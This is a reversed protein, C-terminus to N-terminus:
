QAVIINGSIMQANDGSVTLRYIYYGVKGNLQNGLAQMIAENNFTGKQNSILQGNINYVELDYLEDDFCDNSDFQINGSSNLLIDPANLACDLQAIRNDMLRTDDECNTYVEIYADIASVEGVENIALITIQDIGEFGPLPRYTICTPSIIDYSCGYLSEVDYIEYVNYITFNEDFHCFEPCILIQTMPRTCLNLDQNVCDYPDINVSVTTTSEGGFGDCITYEFTTTGVFDTDPTFEFGNATEIVSGNNAQTFGCITLENNDADTDNSLVNITVPINPYTDAIDANAVPPVNAGGCNDSVTIYVEITSEEGQANIGTIEVLDIGYFGPLGTYRICGDDMMWISCSYLSLVNSVEYGDGCFEPCIFQAEMHGICYEMTTNECPEPIYVTVTATSEGGNGDCITYEFTDTGYFGPDPFYFFADGEIFVAGNEPTEVACISIPDNDPDSDNTLPYIYFGAEDSTEYDDVAIPPNNTGCDNSIELNFVVELCNEGDSYLIIVTDSGIAEMGPLPTYMVCGNPLEEISCHYTSETEIISLGQINCADACLMTPTMPLICVSGANCQPPTACSGTGGDTAGDDTGTEDTGTEDTGTEDTGGEETGTEDTGTEDTGTDDVIGDNCYTEDVIVNFALLDGQCGQNDAIAIFFSYIGEGFLEPIFVDGTFILDGDANYWEYSQGAIAGNGILIIDSDECAVSVSESALGPNNFAEPGIEAIFVGSSCSRDDLIEFTYTGAGLYFSGDGFAQPIGGNIILQYNGSGGSAYLDVFAFETSADYCGITEIGAEITNPLELYLGDTICGELSIDIFIGDYVNPDIFFPNTFPIGDVSITYEQAGVYLVNIEVLGNEDPCSVYTDFSVSEGIIISQTDTLCNNSDVVSVVNEGVSVTHIFGQVLVGNLFVTYNGSGGSPVVELQAFGNADTCSHFVEFSLPADINLEYPASYCGFADKIIIQQLGPALDVTIDGPETFTDGGDVSVCYGPKGGLGVVTVNALGTEPDTCTTLVDAIEPQESVTYSVLTSVNGCGSDSVSEVEFIYEGAGTVYPSIDFVDQLFNIGEILLNGDEDYLNFTNNYDGSIAIPTLDNICAEYTNLVILSADGNEVEVSLSFIEECLGTGVTHTITYTGTETPTFTGNVVDIGSWPYGTTEAFGDLFYSEGVCMQLPLEFSPDLDSGVLVVEDHYITCTGEGVTYRITVSGVYGDPLYNGANLIGGGAVISWSGNTDADPLLFDPLYYFEFAQLECLAGPLDFDANPAPIVTIMIEDSALGCASGFTGVTYTINYTGGEPSPVLQGGELGAGSFHGGTTTNDTFFATLDVDETYCITIDDILEANVDAGVNIIHTESDTCTGFDSSINYTIEFPSYNALNNPYIIAGGNIVPHPEILSNIYLDNASFYGFQSTNNPILVITDQECWFSQPMWSADVSQEVHINICDQTGDCTGFGNISEYCITHDFLGAQEPYFLNGVVGNGSFTGSNAFGNPLYLNLDIPGGAICVTDANATFIETLQNDLVQIVCTHSEKCDGKGMTLSVTYTGAVEPLAFLATQNNFADSCDYVNQLANSGFPIGNVDVAELSWIVNDNLYEFLPDQCILTDGEAFEYGMNSLPNEPFLMLPNFEDYDDICITQPCIFSPDVDPYIEVLEEYSVTCDIGNFSSTETYRISVLGFLQSVDLLVENSPAGTYITDAFIDPAVIEWSVSDIQINNNADSTIYNALNIINAEEFGNDIQNVACFGSPLDIMTGPTPTICIEIDDTDTACLGRDDEVTYTITYCEGSESFPPLFTNGFIGYPTEITGTFSTNTLTWSGGPTTNFGFFGTLDIGMADYCISLDSGLDAVLEDVVTITRSYSERCDGNGLEFTIEFTAPLFVGQTAALADFEAMFNDLDIIGNAPELQGTFVNLYEVTWIATSDPTCAPPVVDPMLQIPINVNIPNACVATPITFSADVDPCVTLAATDNGECGISENGVTYNITIADSGIGACGLEDLILINGNVTGASASFYGGTTTVGNIFLQTLNFTGDAECVKFDNITANPIDYVEVSQSYYEKCDDYGAFFNITYVGPILNSPDFIGTGNGNDTVGPGSWGTYDDLNNGTPQATFVDPFVYNALDVPVLPVPPADTCISPVMNFGPNLTPYINIIEEICVECGASPNDLECYTILFQGGDGAAGPNISASGDNNYTLLGEPAAFTNGNIDLENIDFTVNPFNSFTAEFNIDIDASWGNVNDDPQCNAAASTIYIDIIDSSTIPDIPTGFFQMSNEDFTYTEGVLLPFPIEYFDFYSNGNVYISVAFQPDTNPCNTVLNSFEMTLEFEDNLLPANSGDFPGIQYHYGELNFFVDGPWTNVGIVNPAQNVTLNSEFNEDFLRDDYIKYIPDSTCNDSLGILDPQPVQCNGSITKECGQNDTITIAWPQGDFVTIDFSEGNNATGSTPTTGYGTWTYNEGIGFSAAMFVDLSDFAVPAGGNPTITIAHTGNFQDTENNNCACDTADIIIPDLVIFPSAPTVDRCEVLPISGDDEWVSGYLYYVENAEIGLGALGSITNEGFFLTGLDTGESLDNGWVIRNVPTDTYPNFNDDTTVDLYYDGLLNGDNDPYVVEGDNIINLTLIETACIVNDQIDLDEAEGCDGSCPFSEILITEQWQAICNLSNESITDTLQITVLGIGNPDFVTGEANITAPGSVIEWGYTYNSTISYTESTLYDTLDYTINNGFDDLECFSSPLDFSPNPQEIITITAMDVSECLDDYDGDNNIDFGYQIEIIIPFTSNSYNYIINNDMLAVNAGNVVNMLTFTGGMTSTPAIIDLLSFLGSQNACQTFDSIIATTADGVSITHCVTEECAPAGVTACIEYVGEGYISPDFSASIGDANEVVAPGSWTVYEAIMTEMGMGDNVTNDLDLAIIGAAECYATPLFFDANGSQNVVVEQTYSITCAAGNDVTLTINVTSTGDNPNNLIGGAPDFQWATGSGSIFGVPDSVMTISASAPSAFLNTGIEFDYISDNQCWFSPLDFYGETCNQVNVTFNCSTSNTGDNIFYSVSSSGLQFEYMDESILGDGTVTTGDPNNIVYNLNTTLCDAYTPDASTDATWFCANDDNCVNISSPCVIEPNQSDIVTISFECTTTLGCVDTATFVIDTTGIPFAQGSPIGSTFTVAVGNCDEAIPTSYIINATCIDADTNVIMNAPCNIFVPPTTDPAIIINAVATSDNGCEDFATFSVPITTGNCATSLSNYNFNNALETIGCADNANASNVWDIAMAVMDDGCNLTLNQPINLNPKITDISKYNAYCTTSNGAEDTVTFEYVQNITNGCASIDNFLQYDVTTIGCLDDATNIINTAWGEIDEAGCDVVIDSCTIDPAECDEVIVNFSCTAFESQDGGLITYTITNFGINLNEGVATGGGTQETAGTIEHFVVFEPCNEFFSIPQLQQDGVWSCTGADACVYIDATPCLIQPSDTDIVNIIFSCTDANGCPDVAEFEILTEGFPFITGSPMGTIQTVTVNNFNSGSCDEAVPTSFSINATCASVDVGVTINDPCNVFVPPTEDEEIIIRSIGTNTNGCEDFATFMVEITDATCFDINTLDDFDLTNLVRDIRSCDDGTFVSGLWPEVLTFIDDECSIILEEPASVEPATNDLNEYTAICSTSNGYDDTLTFEYTASFTSACLEEQELLVYTVSLDDDCNDVGNFSNLWLDLNDRGCIPDLTDNPCTLIQPAECDSINVTFSCQTRIAPNTNDTLVWIVTSIGLEFEFDELTNAGSTPSGDPGLVAYLLSVDNCDTLIPDLATDATWICNNSDVCRDISGPCFLECGPECFEASLDITTVFDNCPSGEPANITVSQTASGTQGPELIVISPSTFYSPCDSTLAIACGNSASIEPLMNIPDPWITINTAVFPTCDADLGLNNITTDDLYVYVEVNFVDCTTNEPMEIQISATQDNVQVFGTEALTYPNLNAAPNVLVYNLLEGNLSEDTNIIFDGDQGSCIDTQMALVSNIDPCDDIPGCNDNLIIDVPNFVLCTEDGNRIAVVYTGASLNTFTNSAQWTIGGDISYEIGTAPNFTATITMQGDAEGCDSPDNVTILNIVPAIPTTILIDQESAECTGDINRVTVEYLGGQLNDFYNSSQWTIGGDISYEISQGADAFVTITGDSIGCDTVNTSSIDTIIPQTKDTLEVFAGQVECTDDINRVFISYTGGDLGTFTNSTQWTLGGDISYEYSGSGALATISITGDNIGCETPDTFSVDVIIPANPAILFVPNSTYAVECTGDANRILINYTGPGLNTFANSSNWNFGGDISYEYVGSGGIATITITGDNVGCNSPNASLVGQIVPQDPETIEITTNYTVECTGDVNRVTITYVGAELNDFYNSSQYTTGGDISYEVSQDADALITITGDDAECESINSATVSTILPAVKNTLIINFYSVECSPPPGQNRVIIQYTGGMLGTFINSTQYNLGGDISYELTGTGNIASITITGDTLGCDSPNTFSVNTIEPANPVTLVLPNDVSSVACTGDTYRVIINYSGTGLGTFVNSSQWNLGGDISYELAGDIGNATIVIQGDNVDCNSPDSSAIDTIIPLTPTTIIETSGNVECTGDVNRIIIDYSGASLNDFYNSSQFTAGGDISYEISQDANALITITGNTEGCDDINTSSVSTITPAVKDTLIVNPYTVECSAPLGQNRVRIQYIGGDLGTFSSSTQWSIGGDISYELPPNGAIATIDITGDNVGCETPDTFATNIIIPADPATLILPNNTYLVECTGDDNRVSINYTGPGLGTFANSPQWNLGGDISYELIGGTASVIISGNATGCDTPNTSSASNIVPLSPETITVNAASVTCTGDVNRVRILYTGASLNDFYNSSQFTTGGDISYEVSQTADALITITGNDIDCDTINTATVSTIIPAVKDEIMVISGIVECSNDAANRVIIEYPNGSADLGTFVGTTNTWTLGGDISYEYSGSGGIATITITGDTLNCDTPDTYAVNTIIPADPATLIEVGGSVQCTGDDNRIIINYSGPGLNTFTNGAQWTFGGDISYEIAGVGASSITINGDNIGCDSPDTSNINTIIPAIPSTIIVLADDLECTGDVNRITINYTGAALNDFYNSSQFTAGGDISYEISQSANATITITGDTLSCDSVNSSVVNTVIPAIKDELIIVSGTVVCSEGIVNRVQIEHPNSSADLGTFTNSPQWTLGGDISYELSGSGGSATITINGDSLNCDSPNTAAVNTIIPADPATLMETNGAVECTGDLNRILINYSGAGLNTFSNGTQWSFGGDISYEYTGSGGIASITISGDETDCDSPDIGIVGNIVPAIPETIIIDASTVECTGDINRVVIQYTGADLNDFYNSSQFTTGGDISYEVSQDTNALITITGDNASCDSVNTSSVNIIVPAVKDELIVNPYTVQCSLDANQVVVDYTGGSLNTFLNSPQWTLGGDNSFNYPPLGGTANVTITGDSVGCDSPNTTEVSIFIACDPECYPLDINTIQVDACPSSVGGSITLTPVGAAPDSAEPIVFSSPSVTVGSNTGNPCVPTFTAICNEVNTTITVDTLDPYITFNTYIVPRCDDPLASDLPGATGPDTLYAYVIYNEPECSNNAPLTGSALTAIGTGGNNTILVNTSIINGPATNYVNTLVGENATGYAFTLTEGVLETDVTVTIQTNGNECIIEENLQIDTIDPCDVVCAPVTIQTVDSDACPSAPDALIQVDIDAADSGDPAIYFKPNPQYAPCDVVEFITLCDETFAIGVTMEAPDPWVTVSSYAIPRCDPPLATAGPGATSLDSVYVYIIYNQPDCTNNAPFNGSPVNVVGNGASAVVIENAVIINAPPTSYPDTIVPQNPNGYAITLEEGILLDETVVTINVGSVECIAEADLQIDYIEPCAPDCAPVTVPVATADACPNSPDSLVAVNTTTTLDGENAIYFEPNVEFEPCELVGFYSICDETNTVIPTLDSPDPFVTIQTYIVPQCDAPLPSNGPGATTLDTIYAYFFYTQTNCTTNAPISVAPVTASGIGGVNQVLATTTIINAPAAAYVFPVAAENVNGYAITLNNGILSADTTVVIDTADAECFSNADLQITTLDPCESACAPVALNVSAADSCPSAPDALVQVAVNSAGDGENAAYIEPNVEYEPCELVGFYSVCDDTLIVTPTMDAPNPWVTVNTWAVPRCSPDLASDNPGATDPNTIYAYVIYNVPDCTNNAPFAGTNVSTTGMTAIVASSIVTNPTNNYVDAIVSENANGYAVTLLEGMLFHGSTTISLTTAQGECVTEADLQIDNIEPCSPVCEPIAINDPTSPACPSNDPPLIVVAQSTAADGEDAAYFEPSVEYGPCDDVEFFTVCEITTATITMDDPNPWVLVNTYALPQCNNALSTGNTGATAPNSVYVYVVYNDPTCSTNAPLAPISYTGVGTIASVTFNNNLVNAPPVSYVSTIVGENANGYAITLPVGVLNPEVSITIDTGTGECVSEADLQADYIEPCQPECLPLDVTTYAIAPCDSGVGGSITLTPTGVAPDIGEPIVYSSPSVTFDSATGNCLAQFTAICNEETVQITVNSMDPWINVTTAVFPNCDADLSLNTKADDSLYAYIQVSNMGCTTNEPMAETFNLINGIAVASGTIDNAGPIYTYPNISAGPNVILYNITEGSLNADVSVVFNVNEDSCVDEQDAHITNLDPCYFCGDDLIIQTSHQVECTGDDYRVIIDYEGAPLSSFSNSAQWTAGNNISYELTGSPGSATIIISGDTAGCESPDTPSVTTINPEILTNITALATVPCTGDANRVIVNYTGSSLNIFINGTQWTAGNDISYELSNGATSSANIDITGDTLGCDSIDTAIVSDIIPAVPDVLVVSAYQTVCSDDAANRVLITYTGGSLGTFNGTTNTWTAGNDISYEYSGSGGSATVTITGDAQNCNSPDTGVADIIIPASPATITVVQPETVAECTGVINKAIVVYTGASLGTFTGSTQWTLGGDISYEDALTAATIIQGDGADCNTENDVDVEFDFPIDIADYTLTATCTNTQGCEDTVTFTVIQTDGESFGFLTGAVPSQSIILDTSATCDDSAVLSATMDPVVGNCLDDTPTITLDGPCTTIAPINTNATYTFTQTCFATNGCADTAKYTRYIIEANTGCNSAGNSADSIFEVTVANEAPCLNMNVTVLATNPTPLAAGCALNQDAPCSITMMNPRISVFQSCRETVGCNDTVAYEVEYLAGPCNAKGGILTPGAVATTPNPCTTTFTADNVDVSIDAFCDVMYDSPCVISPSTQNNIVILQTCTSTNGCQDAIRYIRTVTEPCTNGDSTESLLTFSNENIGCNDNATGGAATFAAYNAYAAQETISCEAFLNGPCFIEPPTDDIITIRHECTETNGSADTVEYTRIVVTPDGPCGTQNQGLLSLQTSTFLLCGILVSYINKM